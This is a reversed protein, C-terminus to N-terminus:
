GSGGGECVCVCVCVCVCQMITPPSKRSADGLAHTGAVHLHGLQQPAPPLSHHRQRWGSSTVWHYSDIQCECYVDSEM